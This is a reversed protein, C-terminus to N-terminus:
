SLPATRHEPGPHTAAVTAEIALAARAATGPCLASTRLEALEQRIQEQRPGDLQLLMDRCLDHPDLQHGVQEPVIRHGAILNASAVFPVALAHRALWAGLRSSM